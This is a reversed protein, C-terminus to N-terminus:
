KKYVWGYGNCYNCTQHGTGHCWSCTHTIVQVHGDADTATSTWTGQGHCHICQNEGHGYCYPCVAFGWEVTFDLVAPESFFLSDDAQAVTLMYDRGDKLSEYDLNIAKGYYTRDVIYKGNTKDLIDVKFIEGEGEWKIQVKASPNDISVKDTLPFLIEPVPLTTNVQGDNRAYLSLRLEITSSGLWKKSLHMKCSYGMEDMYENIMSGDGSFDKERKFLKYNQAILDQPISIAEEFDESTTFIGKKHKAYCDIRVIGDSLEEINTISLNKHTGREDNVPAAFASITIALILLVSFIAKKYM